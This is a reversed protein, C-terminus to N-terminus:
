IKIQPELLISLRVPPLDEDKEGREPKAALNAFVGDNTTGAGRMVRASAATPLNFTPIQTYRRQLVPRQQGNEASRTDPRNSGSPQNNGRMLRQRDDPEEEADSERGDDGFADALTQDAESHLPDQSSMLRSTPSSSRSYFSPPPSSPYRGAPSPHATTEDDEDDHADVQLIVNKTAPPQIIRFWTALKSLSTISHKNPLSVRQYRHSSM